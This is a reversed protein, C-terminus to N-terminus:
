ACVDRALVARADTRARAISGRVAREAPPIVRAPRSASPRVAVRRALAAAELGVHFYTLAFYAERAPGGGAFLLVVSLGALALLPLAWGGFDARFDALARRLPKPVRTPRDVEPMLRLWVAFHLSQGFAYLFLGRHFVAWSASQGAVGVAERVISGAAGRPALFTAAMAGDLAGALVAIMVAVAAGVFLRHPLRRRRAEV